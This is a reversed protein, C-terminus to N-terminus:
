HVAEMTSPAQTSWRPAMVSSRRRAREELTLVYPRVLVDEQDLLLHLHDPTGPNREPITPLGAAFATPTMEATRSLEPARRHRGKPAYRERALTVARRIRNLM